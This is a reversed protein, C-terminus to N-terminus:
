RRWDITIRVLTHPEVFSLTGDSLLAFASSRILEDVGRDRELPIPAEWGGQLWNDWVPSPEDVFSGAVIAKVVKREDAILQLLRKPCLRPYDRRRGTTPDTQFPILINSADCFVHVDGVNSLLLSPLPITLYKRM